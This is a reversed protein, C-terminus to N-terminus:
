ETSDAGIGNKVKEEYGIKQSRIKISRMNSGSGLFESLKLIFVVSFHNGQFQACRPTNSVISLKSM